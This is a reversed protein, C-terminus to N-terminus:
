CAAVFMPDVHKLGGSCQAVRNVIRNVDVLELRGDRKKVARMTVPVGTPHPTAHNPQNEASEVLQASQIDLTM